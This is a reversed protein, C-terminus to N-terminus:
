KRERESKPEKGPPTDEDEDFESLQEILSSAIQRGEPDAETTNGNRRVLGAEILYRFIPSSHVVLYDGDPTIQRLVEPRPEGHSGAQAPMMRAISHESELIRRARKLGQLGDEVFVHLLAQRKKETDAQEAKPLRGICKLRSRKKVGTPITSIGFISFGVAIATALGILFYAITRAIQVAIPGNFVKTAFGEQDRDRFSNRIPISDMGAIKGFTRVQPEVNKNHLVLLELAVYKGKDFIIKDFSVESGDVTHPHLGDSLYQSNSGTIRAEILSGGDIRLGWPIRSDFYNELINAEGENVLRVSLIRLNLNEKQVDEGQFLIALDKLPTRVDMVNSEATVDAVLSIKTGRVTYYLAILGIILSLFSASAFFKIKPWMAM